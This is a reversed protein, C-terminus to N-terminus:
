FFISIFLRNIFLVNNFCTWSISTAHQQKSNLLHEDIKIPLNDYYNKARGIEEPVNERCNKSPFYYDTSVSHSFSGISRYDFFKGYWRMTPWELGICLHMVTVQIKGNSWTNLEPTDFFFFHRWKINYLIIKNFKNLSLICIQKKKPQDGSM